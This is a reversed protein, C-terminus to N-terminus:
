KFSFYVHTNFLGEGESGLNTIGDTANTSQLLSMFDSSTGGYKEALVRAGSLVKELPKRDESVGAIRVIAETASQQDLRQSMQAPTEVGSNNLGDGIIESLKSLGRMSSNLVDEVTLDLYYGDEDRIRKILANVELMFGDASKQFEPKFYELM